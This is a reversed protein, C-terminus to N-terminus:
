KVELKLNVSAGNLQSLEDDMAFCEYVLTSNEYTGKPIEQNLVIEYLAKGPEVMKSKYIETGDPLLLKMVFYCNNEEPNYLSVKQELKNARLRISEYGPIQIGKSSSDKEEEPGTWTTAMNDIDPFLTDKIKDINGAFLISLIIFFITGLIIIIAKKQNRIKRKKEDNETKLEEDKENEKKM